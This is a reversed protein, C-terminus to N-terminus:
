PRLRRHPGDVRDGVNEVIRMEDRALRDSFDVMRPEAPYARWIDHRPQAQCGALHSVEAGLDAFVVVRDEYLFQAAGIAVECTPACVTDNSRFRCRDRARASDLRSRGD